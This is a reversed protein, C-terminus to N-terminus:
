PAILSGPPPAPSGGGGGGAAAAVGAGAGVGVIIGVLAGTSLGGGGGSSPGGVIVAGGAMADDLADGQFVLDGPSFNRGLAATLRIRDGSLSRLYYVAEQTGDASRILIPATSLIRDTSNVRIEDDRPSTAASLRAVQGQGVRQDIRGTQQSEFTAPLSTLVGDATRMRASGVEARASFGESAKGIRIVSNPEIQLLGGGSLHIVASRPGTAVTSSEYVTTGTVAEIGNVRVGQGFLSGAPTLGEAFGHSVVLLVVTALVVTSRIM